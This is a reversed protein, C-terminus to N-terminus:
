HSTVSTQSTPFSIGILRGSIQVLQLQASAVSGLTVARSLAFPILVQGSGRPTGPMESNALPGLM